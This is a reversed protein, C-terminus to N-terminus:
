SESWRVAKGETLDDTPNRIVMDNLSLGKKVEVGQALEEGTTIDQRYCVGDKYLWVYERNEEDQCVSEYPIVRAVSLDGTIVNGSVNYGPKLSGTSSVPRVYFSVVTRQTTGSLEKAATPFVKEVVGEYEKEGTAAAKIKVKSGVTVREAEAEEVSLRLRLSDTSSITCVVSQPTSIAGQVLSLATVTGGMPATLINPIKDQVFDATFSLGALAETYEEPILKASDALSFLADQTAAKDITAIIQNPTVVDGVEVMIQEPVIPLEARIERKSLEEVVGETYIDRSMQTDKPFVTQVQPILNVYLQPLFFGAMILLLMIIIFFIARRQKVMM